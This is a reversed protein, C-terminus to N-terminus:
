GWFICLPDKEVEELLVEFNSNPKVDEYRYWRGTHRWWYLAWKNDDQNYRFQAIKNKIWEDGQYSKREEFLTVSNGRIGYGLKLKTRVHIPIRNECYDGLLKEVRRRILENLGM